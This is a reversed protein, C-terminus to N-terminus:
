EFLRGGGGVIAELRSVREDQNGDWEPRSRQDTLSDRHIEGIRCMLTKCVDCYGTRGNIKARCIECRMRDRAMM